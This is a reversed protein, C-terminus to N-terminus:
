VSAWRRLLNCRVAELRVRNEWQMNLGELAAVENLEYLLNRRAEDPIQSQIFTIAVLREGSRVPRVEHLTTSPYLIISGPDGKFLLPQAGLHVALEGGEYTQPAAIFITASLDSRLPEGPIPLLAADAHAGYRMGPVYCALMPIAVRRPFSFDRFERSRTLAEAIITSAESSLPDSADAQLNMKTPNAPNSARGDIFKLSRAIQSVRSIETGTLIDKIELFM